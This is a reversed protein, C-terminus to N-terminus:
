SVLEPHQQRYVKLVENYLYESNEAWLEWGKEKRMGEAIPRM